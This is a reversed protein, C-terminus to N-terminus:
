RASSPPTTAAPGPAPQSSTSPRTASGPSTTPPHSGAPRTTPTPGGAPGTPTSRELHRRYLSFDCEDAWGVPHLRAVLAIAEAGGNTLVLRAPDVGMAEALAATADSTTPTATSTTSGRRAARTARRPRAPQPQGVPRAARRRTPRARRRDPRRRWRPTRAPPLRDGRAAPTSRRPHRGGGLVRGARARRQEALRVARAIDAPQPRPETAWRRATRTGTATASRGASPSGSRAPSPPRPWAPTPRRTPPHTRGCRSAGRDRRRPRPSPSSPWRRPRRAPVLNAVDDAQGGGLRLARLARQPPRGHRGHHQAGPPPRHGAARGVVAWLAPAFVADVTNEAVSEVVARRSARSTSAARTGARGAVAPRSPGRRPRGRRAPRRDTAASTACSGTRGRDSPSPRPPPGLLRGGCWASSRAWPPTPSAPAGTTRAM